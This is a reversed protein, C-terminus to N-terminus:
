ETLGHLSINIIVCMWECALFLVKLNINLCIMQGCGYLNLMRCIYFICVFITSSVKSLLRHLILHTNCDIYTSFDGDKLKSAIIVM